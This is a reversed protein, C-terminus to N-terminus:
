DTYVVRGKKRLSRGSAPVEEGATESTTTSTSGRRGSRRTTPMGAEAMDVDATSSKAAGPAVFEEDDDGTMINISADDTEDGDEQAAARASARTTRSSRRVPASEQKSSSVKARKTARETKATATTTGSRLQRGSSSEGSKASTSAASSSATSPATAVARRKRPRLAIGSPTDEPITYEDEATNPPPMAGAASGAAAGPQKLSPDDEYVWDAQKKLERTHAGKAASVNFRLEAEHYYDLMRTVTRVWHLLDSVTTISALVRTNQLGDELYHLPGSFKSKDTRWPYKYKDALMETTHFAPIFHATLYEVWEAVSTARDIPATELKPPACTKDTRNLSLLFFENAVTVLTKLEDRVGELTRLWHADPLAVARAPVHNLFSTFLFQDEDITRMALSLRSLLVRERPHVNSLRAVLAQVNTCRLYTRDPTEVVLGGGGLARLYLYRRGARDTGLESMGDYRKSHRTARDARVGSAGGRLKELLDEKTVAPQKDLAALAAHQETLRDATAQLYAIQARTREQKAALANLMYVHLADDGGMARTAEGAAKVLAADTDNRDLDQQLLRLNARVDHARDLFPKAYDTVKDRRQSDLRGEILIRAYTHFQPHRLTLEVMQCLLDLRERPTMQHADRDFRPLEYYPAQNTYVAQWSLPDDDTIQYEDDLVARMMHTCLVTGHSQFATDDALMKEIHQLTFFSGDQYEPPLLLFEKGHRFVFEHVFIMDVWDKMSWVVGNRSSAARSAFPELYPAIPQEAELKAPDTTASKGAKGASVKAPARTSSDSGMSSTSASGAGSVETEQATGPATTRTATSSSATTTSSSSDRAFYKLLTNSPAPASAGAAASAKGKGRAPKAPLPVVSTTSAAPVDVKPIPLDTLNHLPRGDSTTASSSSAPDQPM